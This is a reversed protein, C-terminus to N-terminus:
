KIWNLKLTNEGTDEVWFINGNPLNILDYQHQLYVDEAEFEAQLTNGDKDIETFHAFSYTDANDQYLQWAIMLNNNFNAIRPFVADADSYSTLWQEVLINGSNDIKMYCIDMRDRGHLSSFCVGYNGDSLKVVGGIQTDTTNDGTEGPIEFFNSYVEQNQINQDLNTNWIAFVLARPYADGHGLLVYKEADLLLRQDFNHSMFWTNGLMYDGYSYSKEIINGETTLFGLWGGQHTIGDSWKRHHGLYLCIEDNTQNYAIRSSSSFGCPFVDADQEGYGDGFILVDFIENGGEDIRTVWFEKDSGYEDQNTSYGIVFSNDTTIKTIGLLQNTEPINSLTFEKLLNGYEDVSTIKIAKADDDLWAIDISNDSNAYYCINPTFGYRSISPYWGSISYPKGSVDITKTSVIGTLTLTTDVNNNDDESNDFLDNCSFLSFSLFAIIFIYLKSTKM